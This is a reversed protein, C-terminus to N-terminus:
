PNSDHTSQASGAHRTEIMGASQPALRTQGEMEFNFSKRLHFDPEPAPHSLAWYTENRDKTQIVAAIGFELFQGAELIPTLDILANLHLAGEEPRVTFPLRPISAEERFGLRRYADMRYINWDGSPSLNFEWYEPQGKMALFLEFCTMKWLEDKRGPGLSPAPLFIHEIKGAVSYHLEVINRQFSLTGTISIAPIRPAPFPLLSFSRVTM